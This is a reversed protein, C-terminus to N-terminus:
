PCTSARFEGSLTGGTAGSDPEGLTVEFTGAVGDASVSTLTVNGSVANWAVLAGGTGGDPFERVQLIATAGTPLSCLDEDPIDENGIAYTGTSLARTLNGKGHNTAYESTALEIDM